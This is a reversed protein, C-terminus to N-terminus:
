RLSVPSVVTAQPEQAAAAAATNSAAAASGGSVNEDAVMLTHLQVFYCLLVPEVEAPSPKGPSAAAAAAAPQKGDPSLALQQLLAEAAKGAEASRFVIPFLVCFCKLGVPM